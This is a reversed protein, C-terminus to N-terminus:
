LFDVQGIARYVERIMEYDKDEAPELMSGSFKAALSEVSLIAQILPDQNQLIRSQMTAIQDPDLLPNVVLLDNPLPLEAIISYDSPSLGEEQLVKEYRHQAFGRADVEGNKVGQLTHRGSMAVEFAQQPDLGANMLIKMVGIHSSTSGLRAEITKGKLDAPSRIDSDARVVLVSRFKPRAIAVLPIAQARAKLVVYESPGAWAIDLQGEIMAPAAEVYNKVPFFEVETGLVEELASRFAGYNRELEESDTADTVTLRLKQPLQGASQLSRTQTTATCGALFLLSSWLFRRRRIM